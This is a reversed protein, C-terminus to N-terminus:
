RDVALTDPGDAPPRSTHRSADAVERALAVIGTLTSKATDTELTGAEHREVMVQTEAWDRMTRAAAHVERLPPKCLKIITPGEPGNAITEYPETGRRVADDALAGLAALRQSRLARQDIVRAAHARAIASRDFASGIGEDQAIKTVSSPAIGHKRAIENRRGGAKIDAIVALRTDVSLPQAM